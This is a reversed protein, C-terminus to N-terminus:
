IERQNEKGILQTSDYNISPCPVFLARDNTISNIVNARQLKIGTWIFYGSLLDM